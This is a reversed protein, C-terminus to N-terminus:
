TGNSSEEISRSALQYLEVSVLTFRVQVLQFLREACSVLARMRRDLTPVRVYLLFANALRKIQTCPPHLSLLVHMHQKFSSASVSSM